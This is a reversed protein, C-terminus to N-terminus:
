RGAPRMRWHATARAVIEGSADKAEGVIRYDREENAVPAECACEATLTGRAKKLYDIQLHTLIARAGEPLAMNFALGTSLELLNALAIAHVSALHNRVKRRDRMVVRVKGPELREVHAGITATYPIARGLLRSFLWRGTASGGLRRWLNGMRRSPGETV